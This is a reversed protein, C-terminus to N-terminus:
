TASPRPQERATGAPVQAKGTRHGLQLRVTMFDMVDRMSLMGVLREGDVVMLRGSGLKQMLKLADLARAGSAIRWDASDHAVIERVQRAPWAQREVKGVNELTVCGIVRDNDLVPFAKHSRTYFYDDVLAAVTADAPVAIPSKSMLDRVRVGQLGTKLEMQMESMGAVNTIFLGILAQWMGGVFNGSVVGLVGLAVLTWGLLRGTLAAMRTARQPDDTWWWVVARLMRGGDLPFAPLLNFTALVMNILALYGLVASAGAPLLGEPLLRPGAFFLAALVYSAIPGAISVLFDAKPSPPEDELEAVGGFIFLTIGVIPMDFRRAVMAHAFEHFVISAFLGLAGAIGLMWYSAADLGEVAGPFYGTALSWVVLIAILFWSLDLGVKFGLLTFLHLRKTFV